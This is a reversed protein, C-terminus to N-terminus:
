LNNQLYSLVRQLKLTRDRWGAKFICCADSAQAQVRQARLFMKYKERVKWVGPCSASPGEKSPITVM